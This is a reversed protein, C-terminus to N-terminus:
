RLRRRVVVALQGLGVVGLGVWAWAGLAPWPDGLVGGAALFAATVILRTPREWVTVVGVDAMGAATARVRLYEQLLMLAAGAAAVRGDAGALALALVLVLDAVRDAVADLVAGWRTARGTLVAVAGDVGDLLGALVVLPVAAVLWGDGAASPWLVAAAAAVGALTLLDPAVGVAAVPRAVAYTLRLWGRVLANGRPDYGGHLRQWGDLYEELRTLREGGSTSDV